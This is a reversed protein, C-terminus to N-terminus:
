AMYRGPMPTKVAGHHQEGDIRRAKSRSQLELHDLDIWTM